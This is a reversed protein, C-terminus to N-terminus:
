DQVGGGGRATRDRQAPRLPRGATTRRGYPGTPCDRDMLDNARKEAAEQAQKIRLMSAAAVVDAARRGSPLTHWAKPLADITQRIIGAVQADSLRAPAPRNAAPQDEGDSDLNM